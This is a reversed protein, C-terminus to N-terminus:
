ATPLREAWVLGDHQMEELLLVQSLLFRQPPDLHLQLVGQVVEHVADRDCGVLLCREVIGVHDDHQLVAARSLVLGVVDCAVGSEERALPPNDVLLRRRRCPHKNSPWAGVGVAEDDCGVAGSTGTSFKVARERSSCLRARAWTAAFASAGTSATLLTM